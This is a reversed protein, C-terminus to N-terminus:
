VSVVVYMPQFVRLIFQAAAVQVRCNLQHRQRERVLVTEVFAFRSWIHPYRPSGFLKSLLYSAVGFSKAPWSREKFPSFAYSPIGRCTPQSLICLPQAQFAPFSNAINPKSVSPSTLCLSSTRLQQHLIESAAIVVFLYCESRCGPFLHVRRNWLIMLM